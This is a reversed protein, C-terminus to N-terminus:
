TGRPARDREAVLKRWAEGLEFRKALFVRNALHLTKGSGASPVTENLTELLSEFAAHTSEPTGRWALARAMESATPGRAGAYAMALAQEISWPSILANGPLLRQCSLGFENVARVADNEASMSTLAVMGLLVAPILAKMRHVM